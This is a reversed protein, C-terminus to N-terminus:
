QSVVAVSQAPPACRRRASRRPVAAGRSLEHKNTNGRLRAGRLITIMESTPSVSQAGTAVRDGAPSIRLLQRRLSSPELDLVNCISEFSFPWTLDHSAFWHRAQVTAWERDRKPVDAALGLLCLIADQLVARMLARAGSEVEAHEGETALLEGRQIVDVSDDYADPEPPVLDLTHELQESRHRKSLAHEPQQM